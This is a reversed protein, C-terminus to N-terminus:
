RALARQISPYLKRTEDAVGRVRKALSLGKEALSNITEATTESVGRIVRRQTKRSSAASALAIAATAALSAWHPVQTGVRSAMESTRKRALDWGSQRRNRAYVALATGAAASGAAVGMWPKAEGRATEILETARDRVREWRTKRGRRYLLSAIGVGVGAGIAVVMWATSDARENGANRINTTDTGMGEGYSFLRTFIQRTPYV